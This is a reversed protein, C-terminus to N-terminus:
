NLIMILLSNNFCPYEEKTLTIKEEYFKIKSVDCRKVCSKKIYDDETTPRGWIVRTPYVRYLQFNAHEVM